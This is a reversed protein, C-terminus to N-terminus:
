RRTHQWRRAIAVASRDIPAVLVEKLFGVRSGLCRCRALSRTFLIWGMIGPVHVPHVLHRRRGSFREAGSALELGVRFRGPLPAARLSAVLRWRDRWYRLLDSVLHHLHRAAHCERTPLRTIAPATANPATVVKVSMAKTGHLSKGHNIRTGRTAERPHRSGHTSFCMTSPPRAHVRTSPAILEACARGFAKGDPVENAPETTPRSDRWPNEIEQCRKQGASTLDCTGGVDGLSTPGALAVIKGPRHNRDPRLVPEDMYHTTM